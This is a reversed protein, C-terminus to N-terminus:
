WYVVPGDPARIRKLKWLWNELGEMMVSAAEAPAVQSALAGEPVMALEL